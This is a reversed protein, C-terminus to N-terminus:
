YIKVLDLKDETTERYEKVFGWKQTKTRIKDALVECIKTPSIIHKLPDDVDMKAEWNIIWRGEDTNKFTTMSTEDILKICNLITKKFRFDSTLDKNLNDWLFTDKNGECHSSKFEAIFINTDIKVGSLEEIVKKLDDDKIKVKLYTIACDKIKYNELLQVIRKINKKDLGDDKMRTQYDNKYKIIARDTKELYIEVGLHDLNNNLVTEQKSGMAEIKLINEGFIEFIEILSPTMIVAQALNGELVMKGLLNSWSFKRGRKSIRTRPHKM